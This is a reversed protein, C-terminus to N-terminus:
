LAANMSVVCLSLVAFTALAAFAPLWTAEKRVARGIGFATLLCVAFVCALGIYFVSGM